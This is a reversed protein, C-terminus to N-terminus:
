PQRNFSCSQSDTFTITIQIQYVVYSIWALGFRVTSLLLTYSPRFRVRVTLFTAVMQNIKWLKVPGLGSEIVKGPRTFKFKLNWSKWPDTRVRDAGSLLVFCWWREGSWSAKFLLGITSWHTHGAILHATSNIVSSTAFAGCLVNGDKIVERFGQVVVNVEFVITRTRTSVSRRQSLCAQSPAAIHGDDVSFLASLQAIQKMDYWITSRLHCFQRLTPVFLGLSFTLICDYKQCLNVSRFQYRVIVSSFIM